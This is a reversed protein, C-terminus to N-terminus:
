IVNLFVIEENIQEHIIKEALWAADDASYLHFCGWTSEYLVDFHIGYGYDEKSAGNLGIILQHANTPIFYPAMLPDDTKYPDGVIWHGKPFQVPQYPIGKSGDANVSYAISMEPTRPKVICSTRIDRGFANMTKYNTVTIISV